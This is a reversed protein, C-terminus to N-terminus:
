LTIQFNKDMLKVKYGDLLITSPDNALVTNQNCICTCYDINLTNEILNSTDYYSIALEQTASFQKNQNKM